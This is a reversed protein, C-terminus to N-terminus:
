YLTPNNPFLSPSVKLAEYSKLFHSLFQCIHDDSCLHEPTFRSAQNSLSHPLSTLTSLGQKTKETLLM